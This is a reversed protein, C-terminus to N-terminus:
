CYEYSLKRIKLEKGLSFKYEKKLIYNLSATKTIQQLM